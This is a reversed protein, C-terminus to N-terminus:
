LKTRRVQETTFVPQIDDDGDIWEEGEIEIKTKAPPYLTFKKRSSGDSIFIDGSRCCIFDDVM